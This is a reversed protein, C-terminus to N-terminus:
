IIETYKLTHFSNDYRQLHNKRSSLSLNFLWPRSKWWYWCFSCDDRVKIWQVYLLVVIDSTSLGPVSCACVHPPTLGTLPVGVSEEQYRSRWRCYMFLRNFGQV